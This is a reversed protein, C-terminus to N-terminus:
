LYRATKLVGLLAGRKKQCLCCYALFLILQSFKGENGRTQPRFKIKM